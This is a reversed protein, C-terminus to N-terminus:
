PEGCGVSRGPIFCMCFDGLKSLRGPYSGGLGQIDGFAGDRLDVELGYRWTQMFRDVGSSTIHENVLLIM